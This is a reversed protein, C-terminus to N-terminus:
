EDKQRGGQAETQARREEMCILSAVNIRGGTKRTVIAVIYFVVFHKFRLVKIGADRQDDCSILMGHFLLPSSSASSSLSQANPPGSRCCPNSQTCTKKSRKRGLFFITYRSSFPCFVFLNRNSNDTAATGTSVDSARRCCSGTRVKKLVMEAVVVVVFMCMKKEGRRMEDDVSRPPLALCRAEQQCHLHALTRRRTHHRNRTHTHTLFSAPYRPPCRPWLALPSKFALMLRRLLENIRTPTVRFEARFLVFM